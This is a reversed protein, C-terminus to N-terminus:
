STSTSSQISQVAGEARAVEALMTTQQAQIMHDILSHCSAVQSGLEGKEASLEANTRLAEQLRSETAADVRLPKPMLIQM